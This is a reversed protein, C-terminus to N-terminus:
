TPINNIYYDPIQGQIMKIAIPVDNDVTIKKSLLPLIIQESVSVNIIIKLVSNNIGYEEIETKINSEMEGSLSVRVPIKPGVNSLLANNTAMGIPIEFVIGKESSIIPTNTILNSKVDVISSKGSELEVFYKKVNENVVDLMENVVQSDFDIMKINGDKDKEVHFLESIDVNDSITKNVSENIVSKSIKSVEIESILLIKISIKKGVFYILLAIIIIMAIITIAFIIKRYNIRKKKLKLRKM